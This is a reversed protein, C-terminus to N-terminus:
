IQAMATSCNGSRPMSRKSPGLSSADGTTGLKYRLYWRGCLAIVERDFHRANFQWELDKLKRM